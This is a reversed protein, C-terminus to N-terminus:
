SKYLELFEELTLGNDMIYTAAEKGVYRYHWPEYMIETIEEKGDPYRVIFGYEQCHVSMWKYLATNEISRDKVSYYKDTIDCCLGSQHESYGAPLTIYFGKSDKGDSIGNNQCVRLFNAAQENYSRYGSSLYVSLGENRAAQIFAKLPEIIRSDFQQSELSELQPPVYESISTSPNALLFEWGSIDIDPPTPLGLAAARGEPSNPDVTQVPEPVQEVPDGTSSQEISGVDPTVTVEVTVVVTKPQADLMLKEYDYNKISAALVVIFVALLVFGAILRLVRNNKMM